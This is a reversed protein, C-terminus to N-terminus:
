AHPHRGHRARRRSAAARKGAGARTHTRSGEPLEYVKLRYVKGRNTFFLLFDHTSCIHLHEIYDEDKLNMGMVGIGGRRQQRYTALPLRKAYGSNTLSVVMQQDAIVDEVNLDGDFHTLETRRENAYKDEIESLEDVILGDIRSPDGLIARLEAIKDQLEAHEARIKDSELATLRQLRMDLIAQAQIDSLEFNEM